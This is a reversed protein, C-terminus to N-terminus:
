KVAVQLRDLVSFVESPEPRQTYDANVEAYEIIGNQSIVFRAPMPLTWSNEDNFVTIDAGVKKHIVQLYDPLTWRVGFKEAVVGGKDGLIAFEVNNERQSKRSNAATQQSIAVLTAGRAEIAKRAEELAQLDLNCYPCWVGRYFSVVLPGKALLEASSVLEGTPNPLSFTPATDGIKLAKEEAGSAILDNVARHLAEVVAPPAKKTEFEHKLADLKSQLTM